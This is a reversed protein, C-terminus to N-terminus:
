RKLNQAIITSFDNYIQVFTPAGTGATVAVQVQYRYTSGPGYNTTATDLYNFGAPTRVVFPNFPGLQVSQLTTFAGGGVSRLLRYTLYITGSGQWIVYNSSSWNVTIVANPTPVDVSVLGTVNYYTGLTANSGIQSSGQQIGASSSINGPLVTLTSVTNANLNGGNILGTVTLNGGISANNGISLNNGISINGGFRANGTTSDLWYGPSTNSGFVANNSQISNAAIITNAVLANASLTGAQIINGNITNATFKNTTISGNVIQTSGVTNATLTGGSIVTGITVSTGISLNNGFRANGTTGDLWFGVSADNGLVAGSSVVTNATIANAALQEATITGAAIINGQITNATFNNTTITGAAINNGTITNAAIQTATITGTAINNATVTNVAIKDGTITDAAIQTATITNAIMANGAITGRVIVNGSIVQGTVPVWISGNYNYSAQPQGAGAAYTFSATDGTVPTLGTGIPPTTADRAASFWSTLQSSTATTPDATTVVDAMVVPGRSGPTGNATTVIDLNIAVNAVSQVYASSPATNAAAWQVQRGGIASYFLYNSTGFGGAVEYWQYDTPNTSPASSVSNFVGYYNANTPVTSFSGGGGTSNNSYRLNVWQYIYGFVRANGYQSVVGTTTNAVLVNGPITTNGTVNGTGLNSLAYNIAAITHAPDTVAFTTM